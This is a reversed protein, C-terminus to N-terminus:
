LSSIYMYIHIYIQIYLISSVPSYTIPIFHILKTGRLIIRLCHYHLSFLSFFSFIYLIGKFKAIMKTSLNM